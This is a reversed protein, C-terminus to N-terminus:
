TSFTQAATVISPSVYVRGEVSESVLASGPAVLGRMSLSQTHVLKQLLQRANCLAKPSGRQVEFM